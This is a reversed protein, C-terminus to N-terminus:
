FLNLGTDIVTEEKEIKDKTLNYDIAPIYFHFKGIVGTSLTAEGSIVYIPQMFKSEDSPEYYALTITYITFKSVTRPIYDVVDDGNKENLYILSGQGKQVKDLATKASILRYTGCAQPDVPWYTFDIGYVYQVSSGKMENKENRPGIYVSINPKNPNQFAVFTNFNYIEVRGKDTILSDTTSAFLRKELESKIIDADALDGRVSILPKERYFDVRILEADARARAQTFTGNPQLNLNVAEPTTQFYDDFLLGTSRLFSTAISIAEQETPLKATLDIANKRTFDTALNFNLNKAYVTLTQYTHSDTWVYATSGKRQVRDPDFGFKNAIIKAEGQANLSQGSINFKHVNAVTPLADVKGTETELEFVMDSGEALDISPIELENELFEEKTDTCAFDPQLYEEYPDTKFLSLFVLTGVIFVVFFIIGIVGFRKTWHSAETLTM